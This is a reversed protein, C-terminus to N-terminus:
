EVGFHEKILDSYNSAPIRHDSSNQAVWACELVILEVFKALPLERFGYTQDGDERGPYLPFGGAKNIFGNIQDNM